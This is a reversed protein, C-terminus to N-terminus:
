SMLLKRQTGCGLGQRGAAGGGAQAPAIARALVTWLQQNDVQPGRAVTVLVTRRPVVARAPM